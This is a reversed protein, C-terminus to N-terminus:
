ATVTEEPALENGPLSYCDIDCDLFHEDSRSLESLRSYLNDVVVQANKEESDIALIMKISLVFRNM